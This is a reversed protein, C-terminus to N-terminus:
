RMDFFRELLIEARSRLADRSRHKFSERAVGAYALDLINFM